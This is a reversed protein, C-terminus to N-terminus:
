LFIDLNDVLDSSSKVLLTNYFMLEMSLRARLRNMWISQAVDTRQEMLEAIRQLIGKFEVCMGGLVELGLGQIDKRNKYKDNKMAALKEALWLRKGCCGDLYSDCFINGVTIDIYYNGIEEEDKFSWNSILIDGPRQNRRIRNGNGDCKELYRAKKKVKLGARKLQNYLLDCLKDHRKIILNGDTCSLAHYGYADMQMGCRRCVNRDKTFIRAGTVLCLAIFFQPNSLQRSWTFNYPVNLWALAGSTSLGRIRAIDRPSGIQLIIQFHKQDMLELLRNHSKHLEPNFQYKEGVFILNVLLLIM